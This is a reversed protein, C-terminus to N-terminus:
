QFRSGKTKSPGPKPGAKASTQKVPPTTPQNSSKARRRRRKEFFSDSRPQTLEALQLNMGDRHDEVKDIMADLNGIEALLEDHQRLLDQRLIELADIRREDEDIADQLKRRPSSKSQAAVGTQQILTDVDSLDDQPESSSSSQAAHRNAM